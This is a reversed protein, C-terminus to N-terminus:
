EVVSSIRSIKDKISEWLLNNKDLVIVKINNQDEVLKIKYVDSYGLRPNVNEILFDNKPDLYIDFDPLYFDPTYYHLKGDATKYPFRKCREWKIQREDLSKAVVVEYSSDLKTDKYLIGRRMNFGGLGRDLALLRQREKFAESHSKGTFGGAHSEYYRKISEGQKQLRVDTEKTLGKNWVVRNPDSNYEVFPSVQGNPNKKCLREHNCLSNRNKCTKGCFKCDLGDHDLIYKSEIFSEPFEIHRKQHRSFNSKSIEQGCDPCKVKTRIM